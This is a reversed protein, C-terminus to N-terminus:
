EWGDSLRPPPTPVLNLPEFWAAGIDCVLEFGAVVEPPIHGPTPRGPDQTGEGFLM